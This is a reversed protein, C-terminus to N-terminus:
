IKKKANVLALEFAGNLRKDEHLQWLATGYPAGLAIVWKTLPKNIYTLFGKDMRSTHGDIIVCPYCPQGNEDVSRKTIGLVDMKEFIKTLVKGTMSTKKSAAFCIPIRTGDKCFLQLSPYRKGHGFYNEFNSEDIESFM